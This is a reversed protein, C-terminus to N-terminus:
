NAASHAMSATTDRTHRVMRSRLETRARVLRSKAASVTIGLQEAVDEMALGDIDRLMMVKRLLPPMHGIENRVASTMQASELEDEPNPADDALQIPMSRSEASSNDLYLFHVRRVIRLSMLCENAVIRGLWTAFEAEGSYQHLHEYAKLCANQAHDEADTQNRLYSRALKVCRSWHRRVLEGFADHNGNRALSVLESDRHAALEGNMWEAVM